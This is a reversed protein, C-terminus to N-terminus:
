RVDFATTAPEMSWSTDYEDSVFWEFDGYQSITDVAEDVLSTYYSIDIESEKGLERVMESEMWRYGKAGTASVYKKNGTKNDIAERCLWGGGSGPKMPCFSGVRGVFIYNHGKEIELDIETPDYNPDKKFAKERQVELDAVDPLDENM